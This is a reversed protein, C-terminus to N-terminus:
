RTQRLAFSRTIAPVRSIRRLFTEQSFHHKVSVKLIRRVKRTHSESCTTYIMPVKCFAMAVPDLAVSVSISKAVYQM